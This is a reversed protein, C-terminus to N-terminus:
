DVKWVFDLHYNYDAVDWSPHTVDLKVQRVNGGRGACVLGRREIVRFVKEEPQTISMGIYQTASVGEISAVQRMGTFQYDYVSVVENEIVGRTETGNIEFTPKYQDLPEDHASDTRLVLDVCTEQADIKALTAEDLIADHRIAGPTKEMHSGGPAAGRTALYGSIRAYKSGVQDRRLSTSVSHAACAACLVLGLALRM